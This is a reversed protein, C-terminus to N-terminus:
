IYKYLKLHKDVMNDINFQDSVYQSIKMGDYKDYNEIVYDLEKSLSNVDGVRFLRGLNDSKMIEKPGDIDSAVCPIGMSMAEILSIGFGEYYSPLVFIDIQSLFKPIDDVNGLFRINSKLDHEIIFQNIKNWNDEQGRYIGGAFYCCIQPYKIKLIEIAKVLVYQGKKEPYFRAVNGIVIEGSDIKSRHKTAINRLAFKKTNVANYIVTIREQSIKRRILEKKVSESIAIYRNCIKDALLLEICSYDKAEGIDHITEVIRVHPNNLKALTAFVVDTPEQCHIVDIKYSKVLNSLKKMYFFKGKSGVSRDFKIIKVANDFESFLSAEYNKNIVCVSVHNGKSVMNNSMEILQREIGGTNFSFILFLINM